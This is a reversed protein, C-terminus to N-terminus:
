YGLATDDGRPDAAGEITGNKHILIANVRGIAPVEVLQHGMQILSDMTSPTLANKEYLVQDPLWQSHVKKANVAEQMTMDYHFVNLITQYVSTIITSGGPTGVVLKLQGNEEVITPTMSSLMRKDPQIENAKSGVLGFQNPVGPKVSFDDMENNLFFGLDSLFVKSGYNGNLTTTISVANGMPDVISFHTTEISEIHDVVGQKIASSPTAQQWNIDSFKDDLYSDSILKQVPVHVFDADGLYSARDAYVRREFETMLHVSQASNHPGLHKKNHETGTLLQMVAVGGSSPPPMSYVDIADFAKHIPDRWKANYNKLDELTILGNNLRMYQAISRATKGSYFGSAGQYQIRTLTEALAPIKIRDGEKWGNNKIFVVPNDGNTQIFAEQFDNLKNAEAKTLIFGNKALQIAPEVVDEWPLIGYKQHLQVMGAVSGPVGVALYGQTSLNDIPQGQADLYMNKSARAPAKERFDLSEVKGDATRSVMFGGGGINGARPYVVALAFQVGVAADYANGGQKLITLGVRSAEPHASVVMAESGLQGYTHGNEVTQKSSKCANFLILVLLLSFLYRHSM